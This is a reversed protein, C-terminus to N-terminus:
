LRPQATGALGHKVPKKLHVFQIRNRGDKFTMHELSFKMVM